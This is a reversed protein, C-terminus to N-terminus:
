PFRGLLVALAVQGDALGGLARYPCQPGLRQIARSM